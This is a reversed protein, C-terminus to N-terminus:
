EEEAAPEDLGAHDIEDVKRRADAAHKGHAAPGLVDTTRKGPSEFVQGTASDIRDLEDAPTEILPDIGDTDSQRQSTTLEHRPKPGQRRPQNTRRKAM